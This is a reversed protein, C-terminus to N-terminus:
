LETLDCVHDKLFYGAMIHNYGGCLVFMSWFIHAPVGVDDALDLCTRFNGRAPTTHRLITGPDRAGRPLLSRAHEYSRHHAAPLQLSHSPFASPLPPSYPPPPTMARMSATPTSQEAQVRGIFM